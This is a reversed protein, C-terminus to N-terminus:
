FFLTMEILIQFEEPDVVDTGMSKFFFRLISINSDILFRKPYICDWNCAIIYGGFQSDFTPVDISHISLDLPMQGLKPGKIYKVRVLDFQIYKKNVSNVFDRPLIARTSNSYFTQSQLM